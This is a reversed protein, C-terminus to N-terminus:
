GAAEVKLSNLKSMLRSKKRAATNKHYLGKCAAKDVKKVATMVLTEAAALNKEEMVASEAKKFATKVASRISMSRLRKKANILIRKRAQKNNAM